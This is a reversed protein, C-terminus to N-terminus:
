SHARDCPTLCCFITPQEGLMQAEKFWHIYSAPLDSNHTVHSMSPCSSHNSKQQPLWNLAKWCQSYQDTAELKAGAPNKEHEIVFTYSTKLLLIKVTMNHLAVLLVSLLRYQKPTHILWKTQHSLSIHSIGPVSPKENPLMHHRAPSNSGVSNLCM